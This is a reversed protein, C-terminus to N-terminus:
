ERLSTETRDLLEMAQEIAGRQDEAKAVLGEVTDLEERVFDEAQRALDDVTRGISEAWQGTLRHLNKEVEWPLGRLFHRRVLPRFLWMPIAFSLLEFPHDFVRGIQVDPRAPQKVTAQFTAGRFTLGLAKQISGALRDQFARVVRSLSGQAAALQQQTLRSGEDESLPALQRRFAEGAWREFAETTRVLNGKWERMTSRLDTALGAALRSHHELFRKQCEERTRTKLDNALLGLENRVTSLVEREERLHRQLEARAEQAAGAASLAMGLYERCEGILSRLKHLLIERAKEEHRAAVHAVLYDHVAKRMAEFGARTSYPFIRVPAGAVRAVQERVFTVVDAVDRSSILDAKTLLISVDPTHKSLEKLLEIDYVSLPQDISVALLAAGVRPLWEMSTRTNHAYVSGLGPTDVFRVGRYPRLGPVEVDVIAVGKANGPNRQETVVDALQDVPLDYQRGDRHQVIARNRPGYRVRTVIATLPLVAVPLVEEDILTNLFSSKGAKFRGVVAVDVIDGEGLVEACAALQPRLSHIGFQRCIGGIEDFATAARSRSDQGGQDDAASCARSTVSVDAM